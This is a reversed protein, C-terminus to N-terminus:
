RKVFKRVLNQKRSKMELFYIGQPLQKVDISAFPGNITFQQLLSGAPNYIRASYLDNDLQDIYMETTAPNPYVRVEGGPTNGSGTNNLAIAIINNTCSVIWDPFNDANIDLLQMRVVKGPMIVRVPDAFVLNGKGLMYYATDTYEDATTLHNLVIDQEGDKNIDAVCIISPKIKKNEFALVRVSEGFM